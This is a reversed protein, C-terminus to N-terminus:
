VTSLGVVKEQWEKAKTVINDINLTTLQGDRLLQKGAVWVHQVQQRNVAYALHSTPSYIPQTLYHGLDIAIIDAAKNIELSGIENELGLAKAGNITAMELATAAPLAKPDGSVAKALMAATQLEAFMDLDNNSAAGDTGICVNIKATLMKDIPAFGSALKLNSEPCHVVHTGTDALLKIEKDSVHVTHVSIFNPGLLSLDHLRQLPNKGCKEQEQQLEFQTEHMHVHIKLGHEDALKKVEIFSEDSVTYPAHPAMVWRILDHKPGHKLTHEAKQFYETEDKAWQTPISFAMLGVNARMGTEIAANAIVDPYFYHDNFCTTGGRIMEAMALLSGDHVSHENIIAQEAPWIHNQLWDMLDLDDALGRFLNMPIHTHTNVLGPMLVHNNLHQEQQAQYHKKAENIPLVAKIRGAQIVVAHDNLVQNNPAIPLVWSASIILDVSEM